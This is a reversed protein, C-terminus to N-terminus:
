PNVSVAYDKGGNNLWTVKGRNDIVQIAYQVRTGAPLPGLAVHWSDNNGALGAIAMEASQWAGGNASYVIYLESATGAPWTEANIWLTDGATLGGQPPWPYVNGAWALPDGQGHAGTSLTAGAAYFVHMDSGDSLDLVSAGGLVGAPKAGSWTYGGDASTRCNPVQDYNASLAVLAGGIAQLGFAVTEGAQFSAPLSWAGGATKRALYLGNGANSTGLVCANGAADLATQANELGHSKETWSSGGNASEHYYTTSFGGYWGLLYTSLAVHNGRVDFDKVFVTAKYSSKAFVPQPAEWASAAVAKRRFYIKSSDPAAYEDYAAYVYQSDAQLRAYRTQFAELTPASWTGGQDTSRVLGATQPWEQATYLVFVGAASAAVAPWSGQAVTRPMEWSRGATKRSFKVVAPVYGGVAWTGGEQWVAYLMGGAAAVSFSYAGADHPINLESGWDGKFAVGNAATFSYNKGGASDWVHGGWRDWGHFYFNVTAGTPYPQAPTFQWVSNGDKKGVYTMPYVQWTGSFGGLAVHNVQVGIEANLGWYDQNMLLTYTGPNGATHREFTGYVGIWTPFALARTTGLVAMALGVSMAKKM